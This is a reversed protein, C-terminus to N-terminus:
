AMSSRSQSIKAFRQKFSLYDSEQHPCKYGEARLSLCYHVLKEAAPRVAHNLPVEVDSSEEGDVVLHPFSSVKCFRRQAKETINVFGSTAASCSSCGAATLTPLRPWTHLCWTLCVKYWNWTNGYKGYQQETRRTKISTHLDSLHQILIRVIWFTKSPHNVLFKSWFIYIHLNHRFHEKRGGAPSWTTFSNRIHSHSQWCDATSSCFFSRSTKM